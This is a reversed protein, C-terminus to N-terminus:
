DWDFSLQTYNNDSEHVDEDFNIFDPLECHLQRPFRSVFGLPKGPEGLKAGMFFLDLDCILYRLEYAVKPPLFQLIRPFEIKHRKLIM